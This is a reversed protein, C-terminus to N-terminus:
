RSLGARLELARAPRNTIVGRLGEDGLHRRLGADDDVTWLYVPLGLREARRLVGYPVLRRNVSLFRAGVARARAAPFAESLRTRLYPRRWERGLSLGAELVPRERRLRAVSVDELTSVVVREVDIRALVADVAEVEGGVDKLDVMLLRGARAALAAIEPVGAVARGLAARVEAAPLAAVPVGGVDPDHLALLVGDRSRRVDVEVMEVGAALAAEYAELSGPSVGESSGQHGVVFPPV